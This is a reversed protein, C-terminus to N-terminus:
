KKADRSELKILTDVRAVAEHTLADNSLSLETEYAKRAEVFKGEAELTLGLGYHYGKESPAMVIANHFALESAAYKHLHYRTMGLIAWNYHVADLTPSVNPSTSARQLFPEAEDYREAAFYASGMLQETVFDGPQYYSQFMKIGKDYRRAVMNADGLRQRALHTLPACQVAWEFLAINNRYPLEVRISYLACLAAVTILSVHAMIRREPLDAYKEVWLALWICWAMCPLYLYREHVMDWRYFTITGVLAPLVPLVIFWMTFRALADQRARWVLMGVFFVSAFLPGLMWWWQAPKLWNTDYVPSVPWPFVLHQVYFWVFSPFTRLMTGTGKTYDGSGVGMVAHLRLYTFIILVTGCAALMKAPRLDKQAPVQEAGNEQSRLYDTLFYVLAPVVVATEKSFLAGAFSFAMLILWVMRNTRIYQVYSMLTLLTFFGLLLEPSGSIWVVPEVHVPYAAFLLATWAALNPRRTLQRVFFFLLAVVSMQLFISCLHWGIPPQQEGFLWMQMRALVLFIPRYYVGASEPSFGAWVHKTFYEKWQWSDLFPNRLIQSTDDYVFDFHISPIYAALTIALSTLLLVIPTNAHDLLPSPPQSQAPSSDQEAACNEHQDVKPTEDM